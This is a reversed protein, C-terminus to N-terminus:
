KKVFKQTTMRGDKLTAKLLYCGSSLSSVNISEFGNEVTAIHRGDLTFIDVQQLGEAQVSLTECAPNPWLNLSTESIEDVGTGIASYCLVYEMSASPNGDDYDTEKVSVLKNNIGESTASIYDIGAIVNAPVTLDFFYEILNDLEFDGLYGDYDYNEERVCNHNNDYAYVYMEDSEWISNVMNFYLAKVCNGQDDYIREMKEDVVWAGVWDYTMEMVMKGNQYTYELKQDNVWGIGDEDDQEIAVLVNGNNDYQYEIKSEEDWQNNELDYHMEMAVWGQANYTYDIKNSGNMGNEILSICHGQADYVFEETSVVMGMGEITIKLLNYNNDYQFFVKALGDTTFMSDLKQTYAETNRNLQEVRKVRDKLSPNQTTKQATASVMCCLAVAFLLVKKM